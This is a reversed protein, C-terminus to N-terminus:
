VLCLCGCLVMCTFSIVYFWLYDFLWVSSCFTKFLGCLIAIMPAPFIPSDMIWPSRFDPVYVGFSM